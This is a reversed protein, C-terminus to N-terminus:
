FGNHNSERRLPPSASGREIAKLYNPNTGAVTVGLYANALICVAYKWSSPSVIGIMDNKKLGFGRLVSALQRSAHLLDKGTM